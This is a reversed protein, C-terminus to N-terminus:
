DAASASRTEPLPQTCEPTQAIKRYYAECAAAYDARLARYYEPLVVASGYAPYKTPYYRYVQQLWARAEDTRGQRHAVLAWKYAAAFPRQRLSEAAEGAWDPLKSQNPDLYATLQFHAWYRLMPETKAIRLLGVMQETRKVVGVNTSGSFQRLEQYAFGLRVIGAALLLAAVGGVISPLRTHNLCGSLARQPLPPLACGVFLAFVTMFYLYWLPYEVLSHVLSVSMWALLLVGAAAYERRFCGRVVWALGGLVLGSGVLGMEALLNLFSNHSHTFLVNGEYPRYGDPYVDTLFGQLPYSDWGHGFWPAAQFIQWAKRWEYGRGSGGFSSAMRESAATINSGSFVALLPELAFQFLLVAAAAGGLGWVHRNLAAGGFLRAVPLLLWLALVYGFVTRSGTLGMTAALFLVAAAALVTALRRQAWLWAAALVGWMLYHGFHNRQGLQGEVIGQRYMLWGSFDAAAGTYQMWGIVAQVGAGALLVWALVALVREQGFRLVWGRCAWCLLAYVVFAWAAMDNLGPYPLAMVRAQAAWFVALLVFYVSAAPLRVKLCGSFTSLLVFLAAFLLSGAELFFSSLPGTRWISLFPVVAMLLMGSWLPLVDARRLSQTRLDDMM